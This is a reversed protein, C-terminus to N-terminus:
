SAIVNVAGAGGTAPKPAPAPPKQVAAKAVAYADVFKQYPSLDVIAVNPKRSDVGCTPCSLTRYEIHGKTGDWQIAYISPDLASLDIGAISAGDVYVAKDDAIITVKPM